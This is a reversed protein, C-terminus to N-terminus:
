IVGDKSAAALRQQTQGLDLGAMPARMVERRLAVSSAGGEAELWLFRGKELREACVWLGSGDFFLVKM